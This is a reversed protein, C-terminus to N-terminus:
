SIPKYNGVIICLKVIIYYTYKNIIIFLYKFSCVYCHFSYYINYMYIIKLTVYREASGGGGGTM